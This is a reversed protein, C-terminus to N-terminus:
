EVAGSAIKGKGGVVGSLYADAITFSLTACILLAM